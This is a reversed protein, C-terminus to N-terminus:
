LKRKAACVSSTSVSMFDYIWIHRKIYQSVTPMPVCPPVQRVILEISTCFHIQCKLLFVVTSSQVRFLFYSLHLLLEPYHHDVHLHHNNRRGYCLFLILSSLSSSQTMCLHWHLLHCSRHTSMMGNGAPLSRRNSLGQLTFRKRANAASHGSQSTSADVSHSLLLFCSNTCCPFVSFLPGWSHTKFARSHIAFEQPALIHTKTRIGLCQKLYYNPLNNM